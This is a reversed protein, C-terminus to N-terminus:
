YNDKVPVISGRETMQVGSSKAAESLLPDLGAGKMDPAFPFRVIRSPEEGDESFIGKVYLSRLDEAFCLHAKFLIEDEQQKAILSKLPIPQGLPLGTGVDWLTLHTPPADLPPHDVYVTALVTGDESICAGRVCGEHKLVKSVQLFPSTQWVVAFGAEDNRPDEGGAIVLYRGNRSAALCRPQHPSFIDFNVAPEPKGDVFFDRQEGRLSVKRNPRALTLDMPLSKGESNDSETALPPLDQPLSAVPTAVFALPPAPKWRECSIAEPPRNWNWSSEPVPTKVVWVEGNPTSIVRQISGSSVIDMPKTESLQIAAWIRVRSTDLGIALQDEDLLAVDNLGENTSFEESNKSWENNLLSFIAAHGGRSKNRYRGDWVVALTESHETSRSDLGYIKDGYNSKIPEGLAQLTARDLCWAQDTSDKFSGDDVILFVYKESPSVAMRSFSGADKPWPKTEPTEKWVAPAAQEALKLVHLSKEDGALLTGDKLFCVDKIEPPLPAESTLKGDKGFQYTALGAQSEGEKSGPVDRWLALQDRRPSLRVKSSPSGGADPPLAQTALATGSGGDYITVGKEDRIALLLTQRATHYVADLLWGKGFRHSQDPVRDFHSTERSLSQLRVPAPRGEPHLRIAQALYAAGENLRGAQINDHAQNLVMSVLTEVRRVSEARYQLYILLVAVFLAALVCAVATLVTRAVRNARRGSLSAAIRDVVEASPNPLQDSVFLTDGLEEWPNRALIGQLDLPVVTRKRQSFLGIEKKVWASTLSRETGLVILCRTRWLCWQIRLTLQDGAALNTADRFVVFDRAALLAELQSGYLKTAEEQSYSIFFDYGFLLEKLSRFWGTKTDVPRTSALNASTSSEMCSQAYV